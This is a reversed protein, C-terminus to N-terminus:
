PRAEKYAVYGLVPHQELTRSFGGKTEFLRVMKPSDDDVSGDPCFVISVVGDPREAHATAPKDIGNNNRPAADPFEFSLKKPLAHEGAESDTKPPNGQTVPRFGVAAEDV